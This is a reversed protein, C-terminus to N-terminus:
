ETRALQVTCLAVTIVLIKIVIVLALVIVVVRIKIRIKTHCVTEVQLGLTLCGTLPWMLSPTVEPSILVRITLAYMLIGEVFVDLYNRRNPLCPLFPANYKMSGVTWRYWWDQFPPNVKAHMPGSIVGFGLAEWMNWFVLLKQVLTLWPISHMPTTLAMIGLYVVLFVLVMGWHWGLIAYNIGLGVNPDLIHAVGVDTRLLLDKGKVLGEDPPFRAGLTVAFVSSIDFKTGM